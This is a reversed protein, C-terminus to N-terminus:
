QGLTFKKTYLTSLLQIQHFNLSERAQDEANVERIYDSPLKVGNKLQESATIKISNRLQIINNDDILLLELKQINENEQASKLHTQFLFVEKQIEISGRKNNIIQKDNKITYWNSLQWAFRLGGLGYFGFENKLFNLTPRGYGTQAFLSIKPRLKLDLLKSEVNFIKIQNEFFVLEPRLVDNTILNLLPPTSLKVTEPIEFGTYISLMRLYSRRLSLQETISQNITILEARFFDANSKFSVGNEIAGLTVDLGKQIDNRKLEIQKIRSDILLIGFYLQNIVERLKYLETSIGTREKESVAEALEKTGQAVGGDYLVQSIEAYLKYQDKSVPTIDNGPIKIPLSTVDSQYTAQGFIGIQPLLGKRANLITFMKTSETIAYQKVLPYNQIAREYCLDISISETQAQVQLTLFLFHIIVLIRYM